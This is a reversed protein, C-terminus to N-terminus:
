KEEIQRCAAGLVGNKEFKPRHLDQKLPAATLEISPISTKNALGKLRIRLAAQRLVNAPRSPEYDKLANTEQVTRSPINFREPRYSPM